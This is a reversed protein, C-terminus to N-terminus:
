LLVPLGMVLHKYLTHLQKSAQNDTQVKYDNYVTCGSHFLIQYVKSAYFLLVIFVHCVFVKQEM